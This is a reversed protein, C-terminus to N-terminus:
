YDLDSFRLHRTTKVVLNYSDKMELTLCLFHAWFTKNPYAASFSSARLYGRLIGEQRVFIEEPVMLFPTSRVKMDEALAEEEDEKEFCAHCPFLREEIEERSDSSTVDAAVHQIFSELLDVMETGQTESAISPMKIIDSVPKALELGQSPLQRKSSHLRDLLDM